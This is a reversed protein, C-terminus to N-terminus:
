FFYFGSLYIGDTRIRQTSARVIPFMHQGKENQEGVHSDMLSCDYVTPYLYSILEAVGFSNLLRM